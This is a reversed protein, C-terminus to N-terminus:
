IYVICAYACVWMVINDSVRVCGGLYEFIFNSNVM